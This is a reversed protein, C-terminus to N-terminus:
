RSDAFVQADVVGGHQGFEAFPADGGSIGVALSPRSASANPDHPWIEGAASYAHRRQYAYDSGPQVKDQERRITASWM